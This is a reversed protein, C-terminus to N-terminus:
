SVKHRRSYSQGTKTFSKRAMQFNGDPFTWLNGLFTSFGYELQMFNSFFQVHLLFNLHSVTKPMCGPFTHVGPTVTSPPVQPFCHEPILFPNQLSNIVHPYSAYSVVPLPPTM